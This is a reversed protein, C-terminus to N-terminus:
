CPSRSCPSRALFATDAAITLWRRTGNSRIASYSCLISVLFLAAAMWTTADAYSRSNADALKLAGIIVFCIGLLNSAADLINPLPHM